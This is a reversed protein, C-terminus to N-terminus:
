LADFGAALVLRVEGDVANQALDTGLFFASGVLDACLRTSRLAYCYGITGEGGFHTYPAVASVAGIGLRLGGDGPRVRVGGGLGFAGRKLGEWFAEGYLSLRPTYRVLYEALAGVTMTGLHFGGRSSSGGVALSYGARAEIGLLPPSALAGGAPLCLLAALLAILLAARPGRSTPPYMCRAM